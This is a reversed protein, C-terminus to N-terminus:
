EIERFLVELALDNDILGTSHLNKKVGFSSIFTLMVSKSTGTQKIFGNIKNRLESAYSKDIVYEGSTYKIECINIVGDQRDILLDIQFGKNSKGGRFIFGSEESYVGSIGLAQKIGESHKLCLNEFAFGAWTKWSPGQSLKQWTNVSPKTQKEIYRLYFLSYEDTLRYLSEKKKKDFPQYVSIFGSEKLELLIRTLSGGDPLRSISLIESRTLGKLRSALARIVLIHKDAKEFLAQYLKSFENYLLSDKRFCIRDINQAASFGPKVEKLYHPIGGLVMYLMSVQYNDLNVKRSKLYQKTESLSFPALNIIKTVRNHLGGKHHIVKNIMWSASSGCIVVLVNQKVVWTNWFHDLASLFGSKRSALWPLEDFFLVHKKGPSQKKELVSALQRFADMWNGPVESKRHAGPIKALQFSFDQLQEKLPANLIGTIEFQLTKRYVSRVLFTKGVRRRGIVALMEAEDSAMLEQMIAIETKRGIVNIEM